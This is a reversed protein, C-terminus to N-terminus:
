GHIQDPERLYNLLDQSLAQLLSTRATHLFFHNGVFFRLKFTGWTQERWAALEYRPVEDDQLGGFASIPCALPEGSTYLYTECMAFDARLLPLLLQLLETDRLVEEATGQLRRLEDLFASEPLHHIPSDPDPLQPARRGSVFLRVPGISHQRRLSRALEFSVLAGMSHGFFAYPKDMYPLLAQALPEILSPIHTFPTELLRSERGPLQVPCVEIDPPLNESWTRFISAGGGAYPFCFLRLRSRLKPQGHQIWSDAMPPHIM